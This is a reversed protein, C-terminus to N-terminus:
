WDSQVFCLVIEGSTTGMYAHHHEVVATSEPPTGTSFARTDFFRGGPEVSGPPDVKM